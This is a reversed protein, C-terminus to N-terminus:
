LAEDLPTPPKAANGAVEAAPWDNDADGNAEARNLLGTPALELAMLTAGLKENRAVWGALEPATLPADANGNKGLPAPKPAKLTGEAAPANAEETGKGTAGANKGAIFEENNAGGGEIEACIHSRAPWSTYM